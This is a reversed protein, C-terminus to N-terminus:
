CWYCLRMSCHRMSCLRVHLKSRCQQRNQRQQLLFCYAVKDFRVVKAHSKTASTSPGKCNCYNGIVPLRRCPGPAHNYIRQFQFPGLFLRCVVIFLYMCVTYACHIFSSTLCPTVQMLHVFVSAPLYCEAFCDATSQLGISRTGTSNFVSKPRSTEAVDIKAADYSYRDRICMESGVLSRLM